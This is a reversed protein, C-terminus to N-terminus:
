RHRHGSRHRIRTRRTHPLRLRSRETGLLQDFPHALANRADDLPAEFGPPERAGAQLNPPNPMEEELRDRDPPQKPAREPETAEHLDRLILAKLDEEEGKLPEQDIEVMRPKADPRLIGVEVPEDDPTAPSLLRGNLDGHPQNFLQYAADNAFRITGRENVVLIAEPHRQVIERWISSRADLETGPGELPAPQM